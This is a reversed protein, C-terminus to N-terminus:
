ATAPVRRREAFLRVAQEIARAGFPKSLAPVGAYDPDIGHLANGTVFVFPIGRAKLADAVPYVLEGRLNIDLFAGDLTQKTREIIALSQAVSGASGAVSCGLDALMDELLMVIMTEDDVILISLRHNM